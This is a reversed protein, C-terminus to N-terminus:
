SCYYGDAAMCDEIDDSGVPSQSYTPCPFPYISGKPCFFNEPCLLCSTNSIRGEYLNFTGPPCPICVNRISTPAYTGSACVQCERDTMATCPQVEGFGPNCQTCNICSISGNHLNYSGPWCPTCESQGSLAKYTGIQCPKCVRDTYNTCPKDETFGPSCQTCSTCIRDTTSTCNTSEYTDGTCPNTCTQLHTNGLCFHNNPCPSCVRDRTVECDHTQYFGAVCTTCPLKSTINPCYFSLPCDECQTNNTMTCPSIQYEGNRCVKCQTCNRNTKSTCTTSEYTGLECYGRCLTCARNSTTTCPTTEYTGIECTGNCQTCVRNSTPTCNTSEYQETACKPSCLTCVRDSYFCPNTEYYNTNCTSSCTTYGATGGPCYSNPPCPKCSCDLYTGPPCSTECCYKWNGFHYNVVCTSSNLQSVFYNTIYNEDKALDIYRMEIQNCGYWYRDSQWDWYDNNCGAYECDSIKTCAKEESWQVLISFIFVKIKM